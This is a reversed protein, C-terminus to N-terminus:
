RLAHVEAFIPFHDAGELKRGKIGQETRGGDRIHFKGAEGLIHDIASGGTYYTHSDTQVLDVVPFTRKSGIEGEVVNQMIRSAMNRNMDGMWVVPADYKERMAELKQYMEALECEHTSDCGGSCYSLHTGGVVLQRGSQREQLVVWNIGRKGGRSGSCQATSVGGELANWKGNDYFIDTGYGKWSERGPQIRFDQGSAKSLARTMDSMSGTLECLGVIDVDNESVVRAIGSHDRNQYHVNWELIKSVYAEGDPVTAPGSSETTTAQPPSGSLCMYHHRGSSEVKQKESGNCCAVFAGTQWPDEDLKTCQPAGVVEGISQTTTQPAETPAPPETTTTTTEVVTTAPTTEAPLPSGSLCMYHHRGSSEVNQKESGSCCAVFEGTQWPDEDVTTCQADNVAVCKYHWRWWQWGDTGSGGQVLKSESGTCCEVFKKTAWPDDDVPTCAVSSTIAQFQLM